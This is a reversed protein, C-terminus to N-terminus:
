FRRSLINRHAARHSRDTEPSIGGHESILWEKLQMFNEVIGNHVVAIKGSRDCHPHANADSPAGHTAWRTHGIALHGYLNEGAIM